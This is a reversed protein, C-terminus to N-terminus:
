AGGRTQAHAVFDRIRRVDAVDWLIPTPSADDAFVRWTNWQHRSYWRRRYPGEFLDAFGPIAGFALSGTGDRRETIVPPPLSRLYAMTVREGSFGGQVLVRADTVMYRARRLSVARIVFRGAVIYVGVLVFPVGWVVAFVPAGDALVMSEWFVAFGCWLLSLPVLILDTRRLLRRRAPRGQWLIREGPQLYTGVFVAHVARAIAHGM